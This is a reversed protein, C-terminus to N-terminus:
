LNTVLVNYTPYLSVFGLMHQSYFQAPPNDVVNPKTFNFWGASSIRKTTAEIHLL